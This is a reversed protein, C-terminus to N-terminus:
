QELMQLAVEARQEDTAAHQESLYKNLPTIIYWVGGGSAFSQWRTSKSTHGLQSPGHIRGFELRRGYWLLHICSAILADTTASSVQSWRSSSTTRHWPRVMLLCCFSEIFSISNDIGGRVLTVTQQYHVLNARSQCGRALEFMHDSRNGLDDIWGGVNIAGVIYPNQYPSTGKKTGLWYLVGQKGEEPSFTRTM